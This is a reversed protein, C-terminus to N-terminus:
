PLQRNRNCCKKFCCYLCAVIAVLGVLIIISEVLVIIELEGPYARCLGLYGKRPQQRDKVMEPVKWDVTTNVLQLM